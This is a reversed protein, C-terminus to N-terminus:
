ETTGTLVCNSSDIVKLLYEDSNDYPSPIDFTYPLQTDNIRDIYFCNTGDIQCIYIDYPSTGTISNINVQISM